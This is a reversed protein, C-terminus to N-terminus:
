SSTFAAIEKPTMIHGKGEQIEQISLAIGEEEEPTAQRVLVDMHELSYDRLSLAIVEEDTKKPYRKRLLSLFPEVEAPLSVQISM